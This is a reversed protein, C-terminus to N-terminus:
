KAIRQIRKKALSLDRMVPIERKDLEQQFEWYDLDARAAAERLTTNGERFKQVAINLKEEGISRAVLQRIATSRDEFRTKAIKDVEKLLSRNLMINIRKLEDEVNKM